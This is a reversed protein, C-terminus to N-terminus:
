EVTVSKALNRPQDIECGRAEAVHYALLQLVVTSILPLLEPSAEPIALVSCDVRRLIASAVSRPAVAVIPGGRADVEAMNAVIKEFTEGPSVLFVSPVSDEILAIPGHKMEGAAYGEAPLYSIEKLKLAGELALAHEYGRGMFLFAKATSLRRAVSRIEDEAACVEELKPPLQLLAEAREPLAGDALRDVRQALTLAVLYLLCVQTTFAKTSAVGIEPGAQTYLVADSERALTSGVVNCVSLVCGGRERVLRVSALTDATEGSQSVAITVTEPGILPERYRLESAVDVETPIGALSELYRKGLLGAHFSTGCATILVRQPPGEGELLKDVEPLRVPSSGGLQLRGRLTEELAQPQEDIEKRMFHEYGGKEAREVDWDIYSRRASKEDGSQDCIRVGTQTLTAVDGDELYAVERTREVLASVDSALFTEEDGFGIVLPSGSRAAVIAEPESRQDIVGLAWSGRLNELAKRVATLLDGDYFSEVLHAVAESDTESSFRHGRAELRRRIEAHNEIIGNHVVALKEGCGTHPHANQEAPAGHTAWRTHGLGLGGPQAVPLEASAKFALDRVKGESRCIRLSGGPHRVAVGASDYGRYELRSLGRIVENAVDREGVYGVIGCM